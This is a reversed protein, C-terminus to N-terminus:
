NRLQWTRSVPVGASSVELKPRDAQGGRESSATWTPGFYAREPPTDVEVLGDIDHTRRRLDNLCQRLFAM